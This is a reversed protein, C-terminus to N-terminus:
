AGSFPCWRLVPVQRRFIRSRIVVEDLKFPFDPGHCNKSILDENGYIKVIKSRRKRRLKSSIDIVWSLLEDFISRKAGLEWSEKRHKSIHAFVTKRIQCTVWQLAVVRVLSETLPLSRFLSPSSLPLQEGTAPGAQRGGKIEITRVSLSGPVTKWWGRTSRARKKKRTQEFLSFSHFAQSFMLSSSFLRDNSRGHTHLLALRSM